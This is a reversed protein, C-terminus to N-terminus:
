AEQEAQATAAYAQGWSFPGLPLVLLAFAALVRVAISKLSLTCSSTSM